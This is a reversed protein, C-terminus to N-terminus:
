SSMSKPYDTGQVGEKDEGDVADWCDKIVLLAKM